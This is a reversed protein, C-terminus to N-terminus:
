WASTLIGLVDDRRASRPDFAMAQDQVTQDALRPLDVHAVGVDRLRTPLRLEGVLRRVREIAAESAAAESTASPVIGCATAFYALREAVVEIRFAMAHPLLLGHAVGQSLGPMMGLQHSIAHNLAPRGHLHGLAALFGGILSRGRAEIDGPSAVVRPLWAFLERAGHLYLADSVPAHAISYVGEVCHGLANMGTAAFFAPDTHAAATPDLLVIRPRTRPDRFQLKRVPEGGRVSFGPAVEAGALTTPIAVIPLKPRRLDPAAPQGDPGVVVRHDELAGGEAELLAIAEAANEPSGGGLSILVDAGSERLARLGADVNAVPVHAEVGDFCAAFRHGLASRLRDVLDTRTAITRGTVLLARTAGLEEIVDGARAIVDRGYHVTLPTANFTFAGLADPDPRSM